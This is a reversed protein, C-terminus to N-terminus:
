LSETWKGFIAPASYNIGHGFIRNNYTVGTVGGVSIEKAENQLWIVEEMKEFQPSPVFQMLIVQFAWYFANASNLIESEPFDIKLM